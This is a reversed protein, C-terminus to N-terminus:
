LSPIVTPIFLDSVHANNNAASLGRNQPDNVTITGDFHLLRIADRSGPNLTNSHFSKIDFKLNNGAGIAASVALFSDLRNNVIGGHSIFTTASRGGGGVNGISLTRGTSDIFNNRIAGIFEITGDGAPDSWIFLGNKFNNRKIGAIVTNGSMDGTLQFNSNGINQITIGDDSSTFNNNQLESLVISSSSESIIRLGAIEVSGSDNTKITNKNIKGTISAGGQAHITTVTAVTAPSWSSATEFNSNLIHIDCSQAAGNRLIYVTGNSSVNDITITGAENEANNLIIARNSEATTGQNEVTITLDKITNNKSVTILGTSDNARIEGGQSVQVAIEQGNVTITHKGGTLIQGDALMKTTDFNTHVGSVAIVKVDPNGFQDAPSAGPDPLFVQIAKGTDDLAITSSGSTASGSNSVVDIDRLPQETMHRQMISLKRTPTGASIGFKVVAYWRWHRLKDYQLQSDLTIRDFLKLLKHKKNYGTDIIFKCHLMGGLMTPVKIDSTSSHFYYGGAFLSLPRNIQWGLSLDGGILSIESVSTGNQTVLINYLGGGIPSLTTSTGNQNNANGSVLYKRAGFPYYFNAGTFLKNFWTELGFTIQQFNNKNTSRKNDYFIYGGFIKDQAFTLERYGLGLNFENAKGNNKFLSRIDSYLLKYNSQLIPLYGTITAALHPDDTFYYAGIDLRPAYMNQANVNTTGLALLSCETLLIIKILNKALM